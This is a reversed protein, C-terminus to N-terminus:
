TSHAVSFAHSKATIELEPVSQASVVHHHRPEFNRNVTEIGSVTLVRINGGFSPYKFVEIEINKKKKESSLKCSQQLNVVEM